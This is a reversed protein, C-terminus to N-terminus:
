VSWAQLRFASDAFALEHRAGFLFHEALTARDTPSCQEGFEDIMSLYAEVYDHFGSEPCYQDIWAEYRSGPVCRERLDRSVAQHFWTMPLLGGFAAGFSVAPAALMFCTHAHTAPSVAVTRVTRGLETALAALEGDMRGVADLTVSAAGSMLASHADQDAIAATRALARAYAPVAYRADQEAFYWLSDAPLTGKRLGDWFPHELVAALVPKAIASLEDRLM